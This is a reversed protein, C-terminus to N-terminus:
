ERSGYKVVPIEIINDCNDSTQVNRLKLSLQQSCLDVEKTDNTTNSSCTNYCCNSCTNNNCENYSSYYHGNSKIACTKTWKSSCNYLTDWKDSLDKCSTYRGYETVSRNFIQHAYHGTKLDHSFFNQPVKNKCPDFHRIDNKFEGYM